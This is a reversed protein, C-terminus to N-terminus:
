FPASDMELYSADKGVSDPGIAGCKWTTKGVGCLLTRWHAVSRGPTSGWYRLDLQWHWWDGIPTAQGCRRAAVDIAGAGAHIVWGVRRAGCGIARVEARPRRRGLSRLRDQAEPCWKSASSIREAQGARVVGITRGQLCIASFRVRSSSQMQNTNHRLSWPGRRRHSTM